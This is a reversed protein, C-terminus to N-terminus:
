RPLQFQTFMKSYNGNDQLCIIEQVCLILNRLMYVHAGTHKKIYLFIYPM